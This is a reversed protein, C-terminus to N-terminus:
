VHLRVGAMLLAGHLVDLCALILFFAFNRGKPPRHPGCFQIPFQHAQVVSYSIIGALGLTLHSISKIKLAM